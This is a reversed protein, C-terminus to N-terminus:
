HAWYTMFKLCLSSNIAFYWLVIELSKKQYIAKANATALMLNQTQSSEEKKPCGLVKILRIHIITLQIYLYYKGGKKASKLYKCFSELQHICEVARQCLFSSLNLHTDLNQFLFKCLHLNVPLCMAPIVKSWSDWTWFKAPCVM